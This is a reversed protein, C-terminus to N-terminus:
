SGQNVQVIVTEGATVGHTIEIYSGDELGTTVLVQRTVRTKPDFLRVINRGQGDQLVAAIPVSLANTVQQDTVTISVQSGDAGNLGPVTIRGEYVQTPAGAGAAAPLTTPTSDLETITGQSSTNAGAIQVSAKQGVKLQTRNAASAQLTVTLSPQTLSLITEGPQVPDGKSVAVTGVKAPWRGVIMDTPEFSVDTRLTHLAVSVRSQGARILATGTLPVYSQGPLASGQAAFNVSTNKVVPENSVITFIASGGEAVTPTSVSLTLKPLVTSTIDVSVSRQPGIEYASSPALSVTLTRDSEVLNDAITPVVVQTSTYGAPVQITGGPLTYDKGEAATGGYGLRITLPTSMAENLSVTVQYPTGKALYASASTLTVVPLATRGRITVVAAAPSGVGYETPSPVISVVLHRAPEIMNRALTHIQVSASTAGAPLVLVPDPLTYDTGPIADGAFSLEVQTSTLPAQDATVTVTATGGASVTVGGDIHLSPENTNTITTAASAPSGVTYGTGASVSLVVSKSPEVLGNMRTEVTVSTQATGAPLIATTPPTVIDKAGATGSYSLNVTTTTSVAVSSTVVFTAPAGQPVKADVSQVSIVPDGTTAPRPRFADLAALHTPASAQAPTTAVAATTAVPTGADSPGIVLGAADQQGLQYGTGQELSVTVSQSTVPMAGPYGHAAQWQALAFQTAETLRDNMPGPDYGAGALITKLELVDPGADGLSLPRFFPTAGPEAIAARGNLAFMEQGAVTTRGDKAELASVIGASAAQVTRLQKRALTGTLQVTSQLTRRQVTDLIVVSNAKSGSSGGSAVLGATTGGAALIVLVAATIAKSRRSL